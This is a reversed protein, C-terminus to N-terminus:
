KSDKKARPINDYLICTNFSMLHMIVSNTRSAKFTLKFTDLIELLGIKKYLIMEIYKRYM